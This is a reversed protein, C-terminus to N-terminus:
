APCIIILIRTGTPRSTNPSLNLRLKTYLIQIIPLIRTQQAKLAGWTVTAKPPSIGESMINKDFYLSFAQLKFGLGLGLGTAQRPNRSSLASAVLNQCGFRLAQVVMAEYCSSDQAQKHCFWWPTNSM